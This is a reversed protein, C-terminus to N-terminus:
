DHLARLYRGTMHDQAIRTLPGGLRAYWVAPRSFAAIELRVTDDGDITVVFSERGSEPHRPLTSYAFGGRDPQDIVDVVRCYATLRLPGVPVRLRAVSGLEVTPGCAAVAIGSRLQIQWGLAAEVAADFAARGGGIVASRSFARFGAPVGDSVPHTVDLARLRAAEAEPLQALRM